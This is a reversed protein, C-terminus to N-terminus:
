EGRKQNPAGIAMHMRRDAIHRIAIAIKREIEPDPVFEIDTIKGDQDISVITNRPKAPAHKVFIEKKVIKVEAM